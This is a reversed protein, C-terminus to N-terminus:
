YDLWDLLRTAQESHGLMGVVAKENRGGCRMTECRRTDFQFPTADSRIMDKRLTVRIYRDYLTLDRGRRM